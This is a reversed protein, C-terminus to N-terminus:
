APLSIDGPYRNKSMKLRPLGSVTRSQRYWTQMMDPGAIASAIALMVYIILLEGEHCFAALNATAPIQFGGVRSYNLSVTNYILSINTPLTSWYKLHHAMIFYVNVPILTLGIIAARFTVGADPTQHNQTNRDM